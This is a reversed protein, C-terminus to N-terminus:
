EPKENIKVLLPILERIDNILYDADRLSKLEGYGYTVGVTKVGAMKGAGIDYPSDGVMVSEAPSFGLVSLIHLLPVPSPKKEKLTDGGTIMEFYKAFGTKELIKRSLMETKNSLIAKRCCNLKDLTERVFPYELSNDTLHAAYYELFRRIAEEKHHLGGAPLAKEMLRTVGEGVMNRTEGVSLQRFGFSM